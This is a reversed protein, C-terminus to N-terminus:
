AARQAAPQYRGASLGYLLSEATVPLTDSLMFLVNKGEHNFLPNIIATLVAMPLGFKVLRLSAKTGDASLAYVVASGLSIVQALPHNVALSFSIVLVFYILNVVPHYERFSDRM